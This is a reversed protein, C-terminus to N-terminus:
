RRPLGALWAKVQRRAGRPIVFNFVEGQAETVLRLVSTFFSLGAAHIDATPVTVSGSITLVQQDPPLHAVEALLRAGEAQAGGDQSRRVLDGIILLPSNGRSGEDRLTWGQVFHLADRTLILRGSEIDRVQIDLNSIQRTIPELVTVDNASIM